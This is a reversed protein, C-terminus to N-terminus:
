DTMSLGTIRWSCQNKNEHRLRLRSFKNAESRWDWNSHHSDRKEFGPTITDPIRSDTRSSDGKWSIIAGGGQGQAYPWRRESVPLRKVHFYFCGVGSRRSASWTKSLSPKSRYSRNLVSVVHQPEKPPRVFSSFAGIGYQKSPMLAQNTIHHRPDSDFRCVM